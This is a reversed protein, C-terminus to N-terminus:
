VGISSLLIPHCQPSSLSYYCVDMYCHYQPSPVHYRYFLFIDIIFIFSFLLPSITCKLLSLHTSPRLIFYPFLPRSKIPAIPPILRIANLMCALVTLQVTIVLRPWLQQLSSSVPTFVITSPGTSLVSFITSSEM